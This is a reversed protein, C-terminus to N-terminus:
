KDPPDAIFCLLIIIYNGPNPQVLIRQVYQNGGNSLDNRGGFSYFYGNVYACGANGNTPFTTRPLYEGTTWTKTAVSFYQQDYM